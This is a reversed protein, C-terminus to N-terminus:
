LVHRVKGSSPREDKGRERAKEKGQAKTLKEEIESMEGESSSTIDVTTQWAGKHELTAPTKFPEEDDSGRKPRPTAEGDTDADSSEQNGDDGLTQFDDLMQVDGDPATVDPATVDPATLTSPVSREELLSEVTTELGCIM